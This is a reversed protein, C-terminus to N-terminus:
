IHVNLFVKESIVLGARDVTSLHTGVVLGIRPVKYDFILYLMIYSGDILTFIDVGGARGINNTLCGNM